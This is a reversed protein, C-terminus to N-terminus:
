KAGLHFAPWSRDADSVVTVAEPWVVQLVPDDYRIGRAAGAAYAKTTMYYMESDDALTQYGHAFGEPAYLMLGNDASLEYGVWQGCTASDPRIDVVVDFIVGRTCRVFKVEAHPAEQYHLGRVTGKTHSFGVNLQMMEPDLGHKSFEDKCWGRAFYGRHDEIKKLKVLFAGPLKTPEFEM